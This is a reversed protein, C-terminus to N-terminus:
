LISVSKHQKALLACIRECYKKDTEDFASFEDSDIDLVALCKKAELVPIVLESNTTSSCAIHYPLLHVDKVLQTEKETFGRGCVGKDFPIEECADNGIYPGLYLVKKEHDALYFGIWHMYSFNEKFFNLIESMLTLYRIDPNEKLSYEINKIINQYKEEKTM